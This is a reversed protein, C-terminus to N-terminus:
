FSEGPEAWVVAARGGEAGVVLFAPCPGIWLARTALGESVAIHREIRLDAGLVDGTTTVLHGDGDGTGEFAPCARTDRRRGPLPVRDADFRDSPWIEVISCDDTFLVRGGSSLLRGDDPTWSLPRDGEVNGAAGLRVIRLGVGGPVLVFIKGGAVVLPDGNAFTSDATEAIRAVTAPEGTSDFAALQWGPPEGSRARRGSWLVAVVTGDTAVRPREGAGLREVARADLRRGLCVYVLDGAPGASAVVHYAGGARVIRLDAFAASLPLPASRIWAGSALDWETVSPSPEAGIAEAVVITGRPHELSPPDGPAADVDGWDRGSPSVRPEPL